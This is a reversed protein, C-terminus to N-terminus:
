RPKALQDLQEVLKNIIKDGPDTDAPAATAADLKTLAIKPRKWEVASITVTYIGNGNNEPVGVAEIVCAMIALEALFPHFIDYAKSRPGILPPALVIARFVQWDAYDQPTCLTLVIDFGAPPRGRYIAIASDQAYGAIRDYKHERKCNKIECLGPTLAGRLVAKDVPLDWPNWSM